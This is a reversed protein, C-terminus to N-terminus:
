QQGKGYTMTRRLARRLTHDDGFSGAKTMVRYKGTTSLVVGPDPEGLVNLEIIGAATLVARATEGGALVLLGAPPIVPACITALGAAIRAPKDHRPGTLQVVTNAKSLADAIRGTWNRDASVAAAVPIDIITAGDEALGDTQRVAYPSGIVALFRESRPFETTRIASRATRALAKALGGSGVWIVPRDLQQGAAVIRDLDADTTADCVVIGTLGNRVDRVSILDAPLAPHPRPEGHIHLVGDHMTRGMQPFAPALLIVSDPAAARIEALEAAIHGRLTSDIKKFAIDATL